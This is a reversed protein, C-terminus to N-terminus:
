PQNREHYCRCDDNQMGLNAAFQAAAEHTICVSVTQRYDITTQSHPLRALLTVLKRDYSMFLRAENQQEEV